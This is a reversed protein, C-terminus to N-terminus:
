EEWCYGYLEVDPLSRGNNERRSHILYRYSILEGHQRLSLITPFEYGSSGERSATLDYASRSMTIRGYNNHVNNTNSWYESSSNRTSLKLKTETFFPGHNAKLAVIFRTDLHNPFITGNPWTSNQRCRLASSQGALAFRDIDAPEMSQEYFLKLVEYKTANPNAERIENLLEIGETQAMLSTTLFSSVSGLTLLALILKKM